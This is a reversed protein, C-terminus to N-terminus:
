LLESPQPDLAGSCSPFNDSRFKPPKAQRNKKTTQEDILFIEGFLVDAWARQHVEVAAPIITETLRSASDFLPHM